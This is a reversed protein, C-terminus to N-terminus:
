KKAKIDKKKIPSGLTSKRFESAKIICSHDSQKKGYLTNRQKVDKNLFNSQSNYTNMSKKYNQNQIEDESIEFKAHEKFIDDSLVLTKDDVESLNILDSSSINTSKTNKKELDSTLKLNLLSNDLVANNRILNPSDESANSKLKNKHYNLETNDEIWEAIIESSLDIRMMPNKQLLADLV